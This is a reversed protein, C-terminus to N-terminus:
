EETGRVEKYKTGIRRLKSPHYVAVEGRCGEVVVFQPSNNKWIIRKPDKWIDVVKGLLSTGKIKVEDGVAVKLIRLQKQLAREQHEDTSLAHAPKLPTKSRNSIIRYSYM